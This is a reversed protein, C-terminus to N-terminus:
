GPSKETDKYSINILCLKDLFIYNQEFLFLLSTKNLNETFDRLMNLFIFKRSLLFLLCQNTPIISM